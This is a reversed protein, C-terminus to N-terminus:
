KMTVNEIYYESVQYYVSGIKKIRQSMKALRLLM